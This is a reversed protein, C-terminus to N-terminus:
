ARPVWGQERQGRGASLVCLVGPVAVTLAGCMLVARPGNRGLGMRLGAVRARGGSAGRVEIADDEEHEDAEEDEGDELWDEDDDGFADDAEEEDGGAVEWPREVLLEAVAATMRVAVPVRSWQEGGGAATQRRTRVGSSLDLRKGKVQLPLLRM